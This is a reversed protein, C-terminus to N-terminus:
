VHKQGEEEYVKPTHDTTCILGCAVLMSFIQVVGLTIALYGMTSFNTEVWNLFATQYGDISKCTTITNIRMEHLVACAAGAVGVTSTCPAQRARM